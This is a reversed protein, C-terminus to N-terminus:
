FGDRVDVSSVYGLTDEKFLYFLEDHGVAKHGDKEYIFLKYSVFNTANNANPVVIWKENTEKAFGEFSLCNESANLIVAEKPVSNMSSFNDSLWDRLNKRLMGRRTYTRNNDENPYAITTRYSVPQSKIHIGAGHIRATGEWHEGIEFIEITDCEVEYHKCDDSLADAVNAVFGLFDLFGM